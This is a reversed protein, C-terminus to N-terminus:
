KLHTDFFDVSRQMASNFSQSLNHDDGEYIYLQSEKGDAKMLKDLKISFEHPVSSDNTGHHLQIPGSISSLYSTSSISNWFKPNSEPTGFESIFRSRWSTASTSVSPPIPRRWNNMLDPYSAVVGAWIVGAKVDKSVVMNRLTIHGGMSHGWMGIKEPNIIELNKVSAVANLIDITYDNNGYGGSAVGESEGHGRYDPRFVVYGNSAFANVYAIYRETTRYEKPPIYGHNFIVIPWGGQPVDGDPVTMLAYIKLGDSFYTTLYRKYNTGNELTEQILPKDSKYERNKLSAISLSHQENSIPKKEDSLNKPIEPTENKQRSSIVILGIALLGFLIFIIIKHM